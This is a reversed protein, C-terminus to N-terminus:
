PRQLIRDGGFDPIGLRERRGLVIVLVVVRFVWEAILPVPRPAPAIRPKLLYPSLGGAVSPGLQSSMLMAPAKRRSEQKLARAANINVAPHHHTADHRVPSAFPKEGTPPSQPPKMSRRHFALKGARNKRSRAQNLHRRARPRVHTIPEKRSASQRRRDFCPRKWRPRDPESAPTLGPAGNVHAIGPGLATSNMSLILWRIARSSDTPTLCTAAATAQEALARGHREDRAVALLLGAPEVVRLQALELLPEAIQALQLIAARGDELADVLLALQRRLQRRAIM